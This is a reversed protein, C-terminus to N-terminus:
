GAADRLVEVLLRTTVRADLNELARKRGAAGMERRADADAALKTLAKAFAADDGPPVLLGTVGDTVLEPVAAQGTAVVPLASAMAELIAYGFADIEGPMAFIDASGLIRELQGDGPRVDNRVDVGEIPPVPDRTILVLRTNRSLSEKWIRLLRWGGKREMKTGIFVIRPPGDSPLRPPLTLPVEIGFPIVEVRGAPIGYGLVSDAAWRSHAVITRAANFVRQEWPHGIAVSAPTFRTPYREPVRYANQRNTADISIVTPTVRMRGVMLLATNQTYAHIVDPPTKLRAVHRRVLFSQALRARIAQLDVDLRSLGPVAIGFLRALFLDQPVDWFTAVVEPQNLVARRLHHHM